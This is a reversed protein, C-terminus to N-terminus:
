RGEENLISKDWTFSMSGHDFCLYLNYVGDEGKQLVENLSIM